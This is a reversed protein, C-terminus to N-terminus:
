TTRLPEVNKNHSHAIIFSNTITKLKKGFNM